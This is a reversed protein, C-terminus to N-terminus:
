EIVVVDGSLQDFPGVVPESLSRGGDADVFLDPHLCLTEM